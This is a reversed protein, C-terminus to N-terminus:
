ASKVRQAEFDWYVSNGSAISLNVMHAVSCARHGVEASEEPATRSKISAFWRELHAKTADDDGVMIVEPQRAAEKARAEQLYAVMKPDEFYAKEMASPWSRVVWSPDEVPTEPFFTLKGGVELSGETGLIQFGAGSSITNNFTGSMNVMFGEKYKLSANITDPVDRSEKWRYLDGMGMVQSPAQVGMMFHISTCLHVFLDTAIGGSYDKYCRWQFFRPLNFPLKPAPGLFMEWNVTQPNADPPIPYIWAGEATNRNFYARIMTIQGLKGSAIVDRTKRQIDSSIGQSGVQLIRKTDKVAKIIELGEDIKYTLPKEIYVDKGAQMAEIAMTKHWHDPVAIVVADIGKDELIKKYNDVATPKGNCREISRAVRGKYADCVRVIEVNPILLMSDMIQQARAGVGIFGVAMRDSPPVAGFLGSTRTAILAGLGAGAATAGNRFFTRRSISKQRSSM